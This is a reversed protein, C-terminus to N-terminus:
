KKLEELQGSEFSIRYMKSVFPSYDAPIRKKLAEYKEVNLRAVTFPNEEKGTSQAITSIASKYVEGLEEVTIGNTFNLGGYIHSAKMGVNLMVLAHIKIYERQEPTWLDWNEAIIQYQFNVAEIDKNLDIEIMTFHGENNYAPLAVESYTSKKPKAPRGTKPDNLQRCIRFGHSKNFEIWAAGNTRKYGWPYNEIREVHTSPLFGPQKTNQNTEM